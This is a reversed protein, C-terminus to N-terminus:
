NCVTGGKCAASCDAGAPACKIAGSEDIYLTYGFGIRSINAVYTPINFCTPALFNVSTPISVDLVSCNGDSYQGNNELAYRKQAGMLTSLIQMGESARVRETPALVKPIAIAAMIGLMVVVIIIEVMTFGSKTRHM